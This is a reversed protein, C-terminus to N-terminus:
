LIDNLTKKKFSFSVQTVQGHILFTGNKNNKKVILAHNKREAKGRASRCEHLRPKIQRVTIKRQLIQLVVNNQGGGPNGLTIQKQKKSPPPYLKTFKVETRTSKLIM